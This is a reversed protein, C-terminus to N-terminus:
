LEGGIWDLYLCLALVALGAGAIIIGTTVDGGFDFLGVVVIFLILILVLGGQLFVRTGDDDMM